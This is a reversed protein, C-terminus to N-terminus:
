EFSECLEKFKKNIKLTEIIHKTEYDGQSCDNALLEVYDSYFERTMELCIEKQQYEAALQMLKIPFHFTRVFDISACFDGSSDNTRIIKSQASLISM